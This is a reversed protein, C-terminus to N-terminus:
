GARRLRAPRVVPEVRQAEFYEELDRESFALRRGCKTFGIRRQAVLRRLLRENLAPYNELVQEFLFYRGRSM